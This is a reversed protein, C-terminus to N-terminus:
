RIYPQLWKLGAATESTPKYECGVTGAYGLRDIEAFIAEYPLTGSFPENRGPHDAIQIHAIRAINSRLFAIPDLGKVAAHYVDFLMALNDSGIDEMLSLVFEPHNAYFGPVTEDSIPEILITLGSQSAQDAAWKINDVYTRRLDERKAGKPLVGPMVHMLTTGITAAAKIGDVVSKRFDNQRDALCAFGKEGLTGEGSPAAIQAVPLEHQRALDAFREIGFTYPSPHEIAAFGANAAAAFRDELPIENFLYALHACFRPM